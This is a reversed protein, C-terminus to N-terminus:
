KAHLHLYIDEVAKVADGAAINNQHYLVNTSDGAAWISPLSTKQNKHDIEIRSYEDKKVLDGLFNTNPVQGIEMFVGTVKLERTEGTKNDKYVLGTLFKEGKFEKTDANLVAKVNPKALVKEVTIKDAKFEPNRHVIAVTKAINALQAATEFGANGGGIVAVDQDSFFPADCSACYTIGKGEYEKAGPVDLTRRRSGVTVLLTRAEYKNGRDTEIAFNSGSKKVATVKEGEKVTLIDNAYHLVHNKLKKALEAGSISKDGIWNQIDPSVVSQGGFSDTVLLTKLRKRAAYVAGAAGAPGGGIIILEYTMVVEEPSPLRARRGM